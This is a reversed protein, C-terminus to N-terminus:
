HEACKCHSVLSTVERVVEAVVISADYPQSGAEVRDCLKVIATMFYDRKVRCVATGAEYIVANAWCVLNERVFKLAIKAHAPDMPPLMQALLSGFFTNLGNINYATVAPFSATREVSASPAILNDMALTVFEIAQACVKDKSRSVMADRYLELGGRADALRRASDEALASPSLSADVVASPAFMKSDYPALFYM